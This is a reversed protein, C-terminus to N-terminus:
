LWTYHSPVHRVQSKRCGKASPFPVLSYGDRQFAWGQFLHTDTQSRTVLQTMVHRQWQDPSIASSTYSCFVHLEDWQVSKNRQGDTIHILLWLLWFANPFDEACCFVKSLLKFKQAKSPHSPAFCNERSHWSGASVMRIESVKLVNDMDEKLYTKATLVYQCNVHQTYLPFHQKWDWSYKQTDSDVNRPTM